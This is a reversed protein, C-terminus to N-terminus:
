RLGEIAVETQVDASYDINDFGFGFLQTCVGVQSIKTILDHQLLLRNVVADAQECCRALRTSTGM